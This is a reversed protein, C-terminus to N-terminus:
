SVTATVAWARDRGDDIREAIFATAVPAFAADDCLCSSGIAVAWAALALARQDSDAIGIAARGIPNPGAMAALAARLAQEQPHSGAHGAPFAVLIGAGEVRLPSGGHERVAALLRHVAADAPGEVALALHSARGVRNTHLGTREHAFAGAVFADFATRLQAAKRLDDRMLRFTAALVGFEDKSRVDIDVDLDGRAVALMGRQLEAVPRRMRSAILLGGALFAVLTSGGLLASYWLFDRRLQAIHGAPLDVGVLGASGHGPEYIPAYGSMWSGWQDTVAEADAGPELFGALLEPADRTPYRQGPTARVEDPGIVGDGDRDIEPSADCVFAVVGTTATEPLEAMTYIYRVHPFASRYRDLRERLRALDPHDAAIGAAMRAHEAPDILQAAGSAIGALQERLSRTQDSIARQTIAYGAILAGGSAVLWIAATLRIWFPLRPPPPIAPRAEVPPAAPSSVLPTAPRQTTTITTPALGVPDPRRRPAGADATISTGEEGTTTPLTRTPGQTAIATLVTATDTTRAIRGTPAIAAPRPLRALAAAAAPADPFREAPQAALLRHLWAAFEAGQGPPIADPDPLPGRHHFPHLGSGVLALTAGFAWLDGAVTAAGGALREPPLFHRTGIVVGVETLDGGDGLALGFDILKYIGGRCLMLNAPKLDRHLIGAAHAAALGQLCQWACDRLQSPNLPGDVTLRSRLDTGQLYEMVLFPPDADPEFAHVQVVHPDSLRALARAEHVFRARLVQSALHAQAIQKIAVARDLDPDHALLVRGMGGQGLVARVRYKGVSDPFATMSM